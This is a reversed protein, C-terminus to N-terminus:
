DAALGGVTVTPIVRTRRLPETRSIRGRMSKRKNIFFRRVFPLLRSNIPIPKPPAQSPHLSKKSIRCRLCTARPPPSLTTSPAGDSVSPAEETVADLSPEPNSVPEEPPTPLPEKEEPQPDSIPENPSEPRLAKLRDFEEVTRRYLRESQTKYRLFLPFTNDKKALRHFGDAFAYNRNQARTIEIDGDGVLAPTMPTIASGDDNLAMDLCVTFIGSGLRSVRRMEQQAIAMTEIAFLEQSNVPQYFAILDTRLNAIENLDELRVVAFTSATFSHTRANQCSRAKGEPTRPGTSKAANARNAALQKDSTPVFAFGRSESM